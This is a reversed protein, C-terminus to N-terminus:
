IPQCRCPNSGFSTTVMLETIKTLKSNCERCIRRDIPGRCEGAMKLNELKRNEQFFAYEKNSQKQAKNSYFSTLPEQRELYTSIDGWLVLLHPPVCSSQFGHNQSRSWTYDVTNFLQLRQDDALLLYRFIKPFMSEHSLKM